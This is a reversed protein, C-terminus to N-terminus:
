NHLNFRNGMDEFVEKIGSRFSRYKLPITYISLDVDQTVNDRERKDKEYILNVGNYRSVEEAFESVKIPVFNVVNVLKKEQFFAEILGDVADDIYTFCRVNDGNNYLTVKDNNILTHLLTGERPVYGYVNHLRVGIANDAYLGAFEEDFRKSLGYLSTTNGVNATSSSAYVLRIGNANCQTVVEVFATINDHVIQELDNNFVSTQAALHFVGVVDKDMFNRIHMADIGLKRDIRIVAVNYYMALKKCLANGIFGESGTVIVKKM